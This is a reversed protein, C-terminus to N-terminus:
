PGAEEAYRDAVDQATMAEDYFKVEDISGVFPVDWHNVGIWFQPDFTGSFVDPFNAGNFLEVGDIYIRINNNDNVATFHSWEGIPIRAGTLADYWATGSWLMTDGDAGFGGPLVSIWSDCTGPGAACEPGGFLATTYASLAAPNMWLSISYTNDTVLNQDLAIGTAGDLVLARGVAGDEFTVNGGAETIFGGTSTGAAFNGLSEDLNDEFSYVAHPEPPALNSVTAQFDRTMSQGDLTVTATLTVDAPPSDQDPRTVVGTDAQVNIAVPDSSVWDIAAAFPGTTALHIDEKVASLDGLDILDVAIQLLQDTPTYDIDLARMEDAELAADYVKLEDIMGNFPLDWYNVGLAFVGSYDTFFDTLNGASFYEQGDIFVKVLGRNVSFGVHTWTGQPILQGTLGDFWAETGDLFRHSWFMTNGDWGQPLMSIWNDAFIDPATGFENIAGFFGTTFGTVVTPNIWFSVSYEYNSILGDPLRVGNTGDVQVAQNDHGPAYAVAGGVNWIRDGTPQGAGFNGLAESLNDEFDFQAVRNFTSRQPVTVDYTVVQTEGNLTITATVTVTQDGEGVNPRIVTGDDKIVDGNSTSWVIIAGRTGTTPFVLADGSFNAPFDLDDAIEQLVTNIPRSEMQSLWATVGEGSVAFITPTLREAMEDWQWLIEGDYTVGEITVRIERGGQLSMQYGGVADGSISRDANLWVYTNRKATRNIDKGHNIYRYVGVADERSVSNAGSMPAYRHPSVVLWDNENILMEHVRIAHEEGRDPFRTHTILLHQGTAADFYASNHGPALYGRDPTVDGTDAAFNFGGMLKVGYPAIGDWNGSALTMDNGEADVYPGDPSRSRALRINYGDDAALGGYSMFLYYYDAEASYYVFTGEIASHNGGAIHTGYGQGPVPMGTTEDMQLIFIGGSYSGYTMWLNGDADHFVHPDIVNPHVVPNYSAVGDVPYAGALEADTQGSWLFEGLSVYPGEVADSVAVGMYSRPFDCLGDDVTACHGYYLYWRGDALKIIHSAWSGEWGGVYAIGGAAETAYTDFLPNADNVGDAVRVWEVLDTSSAMSLHSGIVYFTGDDARVVSPDHVAMDNYVIPGNVTPMATILPPIPFASSGSPDADGDTDACGALLVSGFLAIALHRLNM